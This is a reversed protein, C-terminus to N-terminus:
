LLSPMPAAVPRFSDNQGRPVSQELSLPAIKAGKKKAHGRRFPANGVRDIASPSIGV